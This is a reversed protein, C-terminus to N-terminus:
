KFPYTIVPLPMCGDAKWYNGTYTFDGKSTWPLYSDATNPETGNDATKYNGNIRQDLMGSRQLAARLGPEGNLEKRREMYVAYELNDRYAEGARIIPNMETNFTIPYNRVGNANMYPTVYEADGVGVEMNGWARERLMDLMAWGEDVRGVKSCVEALDLLVNAYRMWYVTVPAKRDQWPHLHWYKLGWVRPLVGSKDKYYPANSYSSLDTNCFPNGSISLDGWTSREPLKLISSSNNIDDVMWGEMDAVCMSAARRKDGAEFSSFLEWSLNMVPDGLMEGTWDMKNQEVTSQWITERNWGIWGPTQRLNDWLTSYSPVLQYQGSNRIQCFCEYAKQYNRNAVSPVRYAQWLYSEGLYALAMGKTCRICSGDASDWGLLNAASSLDDIIVDWIKEEPNLHMTAVLEKLRPEDM